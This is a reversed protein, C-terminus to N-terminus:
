PAPRAVPRARKGSGRRAIGASRASASISRPRSVKESRMVPANTPCSAATAAQYLWEFRIGLYITLVSLVAVAGLDARPFSVPADQAAPQDLFMLKVIRAYYYLSVVSNLAGWVVLWYLEGHIGAAFVYLKGIFGAFPPLGALSFLFIALTVAVGAGVLPVLIFLLMM